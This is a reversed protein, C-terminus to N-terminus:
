CDILPLHKTRLNQRGCMFVQSISLTRHLVHQPTTRLQRLHLLHGICAVGCNKRKTVQRQGVKEVLSLSPPPSLYIECVSLWQFVNLIQVNLYIYRNNHTVYLSVLLKPNFYTIRYLAVPPLIEILIRNFVYWCWFIPDIPSSQHSFKLSITLSWWSNNFM